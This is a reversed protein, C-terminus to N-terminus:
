RCKGDRPLNDATYRVNGVDSHLRFIVNASTNLETFLKYVVPKFYWCPLM